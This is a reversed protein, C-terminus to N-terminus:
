LVISHSYKNIKIFDIYEQFLRPFSLVLQNPLFYIRPKYIKKDHISALSSLENIIHEKNQEFHKQIIDNFCSFKKYKGKVVDIIAIKITFYSVYLNYIKSTPNDWPTNEWQPEHIIPQESLLSQLSLVISSLTMTPQWSPGNWTGLISLCVKGGAYLNPHFRISNNITHFKAKPPERPYNENFNLEFLFCGNQYPTGSPGIILVKINTIDKKNPSIYIGSIEDKEFELIDSMIRVLHPPYSM